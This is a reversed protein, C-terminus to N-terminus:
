TQQRPLEKINSAEMMEALMRAESDRNTTGQYYQTCFVALFTGFAADVAIRPRGGMRLRHAGMAVGTATGWALSRQLNLDRSTRKLSKKVGEWSTLEERSYDRAGGRPEFSRAPTPNPAVKELPLPSSSSDFAGGGELSWRDTTMGVLGGGSDGGFFEDSSTEQATEQSKSFPEDPVVVGERGDDFAAFGSSIKEANGPPPPDRFKWWPFSM